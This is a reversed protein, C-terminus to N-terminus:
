VRARLSQPGRSAGAARVAPSEGLGLVQQELLGAGPPKCRGQRFLFKALQHMHRIQDGKASHVARLLDRLAEQDKSPVLVAVLEGARFCRVLRLADLRDTKVREGSRRPILSPAIVSCHVGMQQLQWYLVFGCPGAEYCVRLKDVSGLRAILKRVAEATNAITGLSRPDEKEDAIAVAIQDAHVDLGVYRLKSKM